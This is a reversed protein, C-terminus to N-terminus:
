EATEANLADFMEEISHYIPRKKGSALEADVEREGALWEPTWFWAQDPDIAMLAVVPRGERTLTVYEGNEAARIEEAPIVTDSKPDTPIQHSPCM